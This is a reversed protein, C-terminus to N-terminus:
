MRECHVHDCVYESSGVSFHVYRPIKTMLKNQPMLTDLSCNLSNVVFTVAYWFLTKEELILAFIMRYM